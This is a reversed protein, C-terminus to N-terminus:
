ATKTILKTLNGIRPDLAPMQLYLRQMEVSVPPLQAPILSPDPEIIDSLVTYRIKNSPHRRTFFSDSSDRELTNIDSSIALARPCTFLVNTSLAEVFYHQLLPESSRTSEELKFWQGQKLLPTPVPHSRSWARGDYHDLAIGRWKLDRPLEAQSDELKVRMVVTPSEKITGIEGLEVTESFGSVM